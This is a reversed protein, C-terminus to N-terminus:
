VCVCVCVCVCVADTAKPVRVPFNRLTDGTRGNLAWVHGNTTAVIVDVVGDGNVDGLTPGQSSFGSM